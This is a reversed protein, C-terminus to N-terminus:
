NYYRLQSLETGYGFNDDTGLNMMIERIGSYYARISDPYKEIHKEVLMVTKTLEDLNLMRRNPRNIYHGHELVDIIEAFLKKYDDVKDLAYVKIDGYSNWVFIIQKKDKDNKKM